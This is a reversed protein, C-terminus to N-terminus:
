NARRVRRIEMRALSLILKASIGAYVLANTPKGHRKAYHKRYFRYMGYHFSWNVRRSRARTASGGKMHTVSVAPDYWTQWGSEALRYCLDIDEIYMWFGEDFLGVEEVAERRMLMFAGSVLDVPGPEAPLARYQALGAPVKSRRALKTFHGLTGLVTPFSRAAAHDVTGDARELRCSALGVNPLKEVVTLLHDLTGAHLRTDPNMALVYDASGARIGLNSARGFGLNAPAAITEVDPFDNRVLELTRDDSANDVVFVRTACRPRHNAISKLCEPLVDRSRYTVIVIDLTPSM